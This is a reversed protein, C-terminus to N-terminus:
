IRIKFIVQMNQQKNIQTNQMNQMNQRNQKNKM